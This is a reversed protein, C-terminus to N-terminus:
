QIYQKQGPRLLASTVLWGNSPHFIVVKYLKIYALTNGAESSDTYNVKRFEIDFMLGNQPRKGIRHYEPVREFDYFLMNISAKYM